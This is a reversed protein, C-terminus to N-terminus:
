KVQFPAIMGFEAHAMGSTSDPFFCVLVYHGAALDFTVWMSQGPAMTRINAIEEAPLEGEFTHGWAKLDEITKGPALRTIIFEHPQQGRNSIKWMQPGAKIEAPVEFVFDQMVVPVDFQPEQITTQSHRAVVTLPKLMGKADDSIGDEGSDFSALVYQGEALDLVVQTQQGPSTTTVGGALTILSFLSEPDQTYAPNFQELTVGDNLRIFHAMHAAQGINELTISVLGAEVQDPADFAYETTRITIEPIGMAPAAESRSAPGCAGLLFAMLVITGLALLFNGLRLWPQSRTPTIAALRRSQEAEQLREEYITKSLESLQTPHLTSM